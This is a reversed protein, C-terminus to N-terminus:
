HTTKSIYTVSILQNFPQKVISTWPIANIILSSGSLVRLAAATAERSSPGLWLLVFMGWQREWMQEEKMKMYISWVIIFKRSM